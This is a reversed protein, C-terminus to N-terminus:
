AREKQQLLAIPVEKTIAKPGNTYAPLSLMEGWCACPSMDAGTRSTEDKNRKSKENMDKKQM